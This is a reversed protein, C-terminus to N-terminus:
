WMNYFDGCYWPDLPHWTCHAWFRPPPRRQPPVPGKPQSPPLPKITTTTTTTIEPAALEGRAQETTAETAILKGPSVQPPPPEKTTAEVKSTFPSEWKKCCRQMPFILNHQPLLTQTKLESRLRSM